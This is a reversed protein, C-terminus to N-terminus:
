VRRAKQRYNATWEVSGFACRYPKDNILQIIVEENKAFIPFKFEGTDRPIVDTVNDPDALTRGNFVTISTSGNTPTVHAEFYSTDTYIVSFYRLQLRGDQIASEGDSNEERLYQGSFEYLFEYNSGVM